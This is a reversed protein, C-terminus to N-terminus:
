NCHRFAEKLLVELPADRPVRETAREVARVAIAAKYGAQQIAATALTNREVQLYRSAADRVSATAPTPRVPAASASRVIATPCAPAASAAHAIPASGVRVALAVHVPVVQAPHLPVPSARVGAPSPGRGAHGNMVRIDEGRVEVGNRTFVLAGDADGSVTIVDEHDLKHHGRCLTAINSSSHGGGHARHKLHHADLNRTSRCGPFRCRYQDRELVLRRIRPPITATARKGTEDDVIIADCEAGEVQQKTLPFPVGAGHQVTAKCHRCTTLHIMVSPGVSVGRADRTGTDRADDVSAEGLNEVATTKGIDAVGCAATADMARRCLVDVFTADDLAHGLEDEICRRTERLLARTPADLKWIVTHAILTPDPDDTPEDGKKHGALMQEVQRYNRGRAKELWNAETEPTAVRTLERVVSYPMNGAELESELAPLAGLEKAVRLKEQATRPAYGFVEELYEIAHVYGLARWVNCEDARRLWRAEEADLGARQKALRRLQHDIEDHSPTTTNAAGSAWDGECEITNDRFM